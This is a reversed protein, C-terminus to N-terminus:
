RSKLESQIIYRKPAPGVFSFPYCTTLTLVPKNYSVIVSRDNPETIWIKTIRYVFVGKETQIYLEDGRQLKNMKQFVTDRHGSLVVNDPEGPLVSKLYHGIGWVLDEETTGEIIPIQVNFRPIILIAFYEGKKPREEKTYIIWPVGNNDQRQEQYSFSKIEQIVSLKQLYRIGSYSM